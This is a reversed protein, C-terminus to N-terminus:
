KLNQQEIEQIQSQVMNILENLDRNKELNTYTLFLLTLPHVVTSTHEFLM